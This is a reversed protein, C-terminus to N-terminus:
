ELYHNVAIARIREAPALEKIRKAVEIRNDPDEDHSSHEHDHHELAHHAHKDAM